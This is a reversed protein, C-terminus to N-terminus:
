PVSSVTGFQAGLYGCRYINFHHTYGNDYEDCHYEVDHVHDYDHDVARLDVDM